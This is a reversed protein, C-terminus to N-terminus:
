RRPSDRMVKWGPSRATTQKAIRAAHHLSNPSLDLGHVDIAGLRAWSITDIGIHCQLHLLSHGQVGSQPLHPALISLDNQVVTSITARNALFGGVDYMESRVHVDARDDWNAKNGAIAEAEHKAAAGQM